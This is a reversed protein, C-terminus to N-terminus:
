PMPPAVKAAALSGAEAVLSCINIGTCQATCYSPLTFLSADQPGVVYTSPIFYQYDDPIQSFGVPTATGTETLWVNPQAGWILWSDAVGSWVPTSLPATSIFTGNADRMWTPHVIDCGQTSNCCGCCKQEAPWVLYRVGGTVLHTCPTDVDLVSGCFRDYKGTSRDIRERRNAYDYSWSGTFSYNAVVISTTESFNLSWSPPWVPPPPASQAAAGLVLLAAGLSLSPLPSM